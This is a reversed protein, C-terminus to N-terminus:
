PLERAQQIDDNSINGEVTMTGPVADSGTGTAFLKEGRTATRKCHVYVALRVALDQATGVWVADIGARVNLKSPNIVGDVFIDSWIRAKGVSLNDLRTWDFGNQLIEARGVSTRWVIYPPEAPANLAEAIVAAGGSTM